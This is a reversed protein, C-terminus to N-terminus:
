IVMDFYEEMFDIIDQRNCKLKKSISTYSEGRVIMRIIESLRRGTRKDVIYTARYLFLNQESEPLREFDRIMTWIPKITPDDRDGRSTKFIRKLIQIADLIRYYHLGLEDAIQEATKGQAYLQVMKTVPLFNLKDALREISDLTEKFQMEEEISEDPVIDARTVKEMDPDNGNFPSEDLSQWVPCRSSVNISRTLDILKSTVIMRVFSEFKCNRTDDFSINQQIIKIWCESVVDEESMQDFVNYFKYKLSRTVKLAEEQFRVTLKPDSLLNCRPELSRDKRVVENGGFKNYSGLQVVKDDIIYM